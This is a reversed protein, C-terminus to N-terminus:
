FLLNGLKNSFLQISDHGLQDVSTAPKHTAHWAGQKVQEPAGLIQLDQLSDAIPAL